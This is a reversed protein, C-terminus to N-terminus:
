VMSQRVMQLVKGADLTRAQHQIQPLAQPEIQKASVLLDQYTQKLLATSM